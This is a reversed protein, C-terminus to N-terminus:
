YWAEIALVTLLLGYNFTHQISLANAWTMDPTNTSAHNCALAEEGQMGKGDKYRPGAGSVTRATRHYTRYLCQVAVRYTESM